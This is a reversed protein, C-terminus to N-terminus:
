EDLRVETKTDMVSISIRARNLYGFVRLLDRVAEITRGGRGILASRDADCVSIKLHLGREDMEREIVLDEPHQLLKEIILSVYEVEPPLKQSETVM